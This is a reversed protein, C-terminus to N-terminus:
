NAEAVKMQREVGFLHKKVFSDKKGLSIEFPSEMCCVTGSERVMWSRVGMNSMRLQM